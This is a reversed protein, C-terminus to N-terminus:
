IMEIEHLNDRLKQVEPDEIYEDFTM